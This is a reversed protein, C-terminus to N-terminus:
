EKTTSWEEIVIKNKISDKRKSVSMKTTFSYNEKVEGQTTYATLTYKGKIVFSSLKNDVTMDDISTITGIWRPMLKMPKIEGDTTKYIVNDNWDLGYQNKNKDIKFPLENNKIFNDSFMDEYISKPIETGYSDGHQFEVWSGYIPNIIRNIYSLTYFRIDEQTATTYYLNPKDNIIEKSAESTYGDKASPYNSIMNGYKTGDMSAMIENNYTADKFFRYSWNPLTVAVEQSNSDSQTAVNTQISNTKQITTQSKPAFLALAGALGAILVISTGAVLLANTKRQKKISNNHTNQEESDSLTEFMKNLNQNKTM